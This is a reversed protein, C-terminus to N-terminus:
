RAKVDALYADGDIAFPWVMEVHDAMPKVIANVAGKASSAVGSLLQISGDPARPELLISSFRGRVGGSEYTIAYRDLFTAFASTPDDALEANASDAHLRFGALVEVAAGDARALVLLIFAPARPPDILKTAVIMRLGAAEYAAVAQPNRLAEEAHTRRCAGFSLAEFAGSFRLDASRSMPEAETESAQLEFAIEEKTLAM